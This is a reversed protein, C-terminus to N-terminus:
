QPRVLVEFSTESVTGDPSVLATRKSLTGQNYLFYQVAFGNDGGRVATPQTLSRKVSGPVANWWQEFAKRSTTHSYRLRFDDLATGELKMDDSIVSSRFEAGRAMKLYSGFVADAFDPSDIHLHLARMLNNFGSIPDTFGALLYTQGSDINIGAIWESTHDTQVLLSEITDGKLVYTSMAIRYFCVPAVQKGPKADGNTELFILDDLLDGAPIVRFQASGSFGSSDAVTRLVKATQKEESCINQASTTRQPLGCSVILLFFVLIRRMSM